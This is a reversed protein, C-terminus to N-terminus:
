ARGPQASSLTRFRGHDGDVIAVVLNLETRGTLRLRVQAIQVGEAAMKWQQPLRGIKKGLGTRNTGRTALHFPNGNCTVTTVSEFRGPATFSLYVCLRVRCCRQANQETFPLIQALM